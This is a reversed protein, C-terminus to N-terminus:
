KNAEIIAGICAHFNDADTSARRGGGYTGTFNKDLWEDILKYDVLESCAYWFMVLKGDIKYWTTSICCPRDNIEGVKIMWGPSILKWTHKGYRPNDSELCYDRWLCSKEFSTAEVIFFTKELRSRTTDNLYIM